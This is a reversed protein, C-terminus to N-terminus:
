GGLGQMATGSVVCLSLFSLDEVRGLEAGWEHLRLEHFPSGRRCFLAYWSSLGVYNWSNDASTATTGDYATANAISHKSTGSFM